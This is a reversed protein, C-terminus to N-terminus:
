FGGGPWSVTKPACVCPTNRCEACRHTTDNASAANAEEENTAPIQAPEPAAKQPVANLIRSVTATTAANNSMQANQQASIANHLAMGITETLVNDLITMSPSNEEHNLIQIVPKFDFESTSSESNSSSM